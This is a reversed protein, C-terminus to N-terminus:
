VFLNILITQNTIIQDDVAKSLSSSENKYGLFGCDRYRRTSYLDRAEREWKAKM